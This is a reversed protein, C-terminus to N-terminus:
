SPARLFRALSDSYTRYDFKSAACRLSCQRMHERDASSLAFVRKVTEAFSRVSVQPVVLANEGDTLFEGLNSTLNCLLPVGLAQFESVKSPFCADAWKAPDRLFVGFDASATIPLVKEVPVKGHFRFAGDPAKMIQKRLLPDRGIDERTSGLFELIVDHGESRLLLVAETIVDLRDRWWGGSFLLKVGRKHGQPASRCDWKPASADILPPLLMAQCGSDNYYRELFRSIAIIHNIRKNLVRRQIESDLLDFMRHRLKVADFQWFGQWEGVVVALKWARALCLNHLAALAAGNLPGGPYAIVIRYEQAPVQNLWKLLKNESANLNALAAKWGRLVRGTPPSHCTFERFDERVSAPVADEGLYEVCFDTGSLAKGLGIVYNSGADGGSFTFGGVILIKAKQGTSM